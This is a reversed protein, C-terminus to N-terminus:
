KVASIPALREARGIPCFRERVMNGVFRAGSRLQQPERSRVRAPVRGNRAYLNIIRTKYLKDVCLILPQATSQHAEVSAAAARVAVEAIEKHMEM